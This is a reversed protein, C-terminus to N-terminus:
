SRRGIAALWEGYEQQGLRYLALRGEDLHAMAETLLRAFADRDRGPVAEGAVRWINPKTPPMKKRVLTQVAAALEQRYRIKLPDPTPPTEAAALYNQCSRECAWVFVDRLLEIRRLEYVGLTGETYALEPVDLFSLPCLNHRLLPINAGLRSVRKNIDVFPQLYPIQVMLFFAQEFPDSIANAKDLLLRFGNEIFQPMALPQFVTGAIELPRRRLRGAAADDCLLNQSLVAHLNRFTLVDFGGEGVNDLLMEVAAKHNLIMQVELIDKGGAATGSEILCQAERRTYTNGELRSSAWSLDVLLRDKISNAYVGASQGAAPTRGIEHLQLRIADPLYQTVGPEYRELLERSYGVPSRQTLPQRIMDRIEAGEKSVPVYLEYAGGPGAVRSAAVAPPAPARSKYVRAVSRGEGTLRGDQVLRALRRQLTRRNIGGLRAVLMEHLGSVGIGEPCAAVMAMIAEFERTSTAQNM